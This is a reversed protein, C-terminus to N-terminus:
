EEKPAGLMVIRPARARREADRRAGHWALAVGWLPSLDVATTEARHRFVWGRGHTLPHERASTVAATVWSSERVRVRAELVDAKLRAAALAMTGTTVVDLAKFNRTNCAARVPDEVSLGPVLVEAVKRGELVETLFKEVWGWGQDYRVLGVVEGDSVAVTCRTQSPPADVAVWVRADDAIGALPSCVDRWMLGPFVGLDGTLSDAAWQNLRTRRFHEQGRRKLANETRRVTITRGLAPMCSRWVETDTHDSDPAASWEFFCSGASTGSAVAARNLEVKDRLYTSKGDGATSILWMQADSFTSMAPELAEEHRADTYSWGEDCVAFNLSLGHGAERSGSLIHCVSGWRECVLSAMLASKNLKLKWDEIISSRELLRWVSGKWLRLADALTASVYAGELGGKRLWRLIVVLMLLSKGQQRGVSVVIDDYTPLGDGGQETAVALVHRQWPMLRVGLIRAVDEYEALQNVAAPDAPTGFRPPPSWGDWDVDSDVAAVEAVVSQALQRLPDAVLESLSLQPQGSRAAMAERLRNPTLRGYALLWRVVGAVDPDLQWSYPQVPVGLDLKLVQKTKSVAIRSHLEALREAMAASQRGFDDVAMLAVMVCARTKGTSSLQGPLLESRSLVDRWRQESLNSM